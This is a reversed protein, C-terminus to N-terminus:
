ISIFGVFEGHTLCHAWVRYTDGPKADKPLKVLYVTNKGKNEKIDAGGFGIYSKAEAGVGPWDAYKSEAEEAEGDVAKRLRVWNYWHGPYKKADDKPASPHQAYGKSPDGWMIAVHGAPVLKADVSPVYPLHKGLHKKEGDPGTIAGLYSKPIAGALGRQKNFAVANWDAPKTKPVPVSTELPGGAGIGDARKPPPPRKKSSQKKASQAGTTTCSVVLPALVIGGTVAAIQKLFERRRADNEM